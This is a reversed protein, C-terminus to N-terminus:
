RKILRMGKKEIMTDVLPIDDWELHRETLSRKTEGHLPERADLPNARGARCYRFDYVSFGPELWKMEIAKMGHQFGRRYAREAWICLAKQAWKPIFVEQQKKM